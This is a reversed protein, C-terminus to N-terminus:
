IQVILSDLWRRDRRVTRNKFIMQQGHKTAQVFDSRRIDGYARLPKANRGTVAYTSSLVTWALAPYQWRADPAMKWHRYILNRCFDRRKDMVWHFLTSKDEWARTLLRRDRKQCGCSKRGIWFSPFATRTRVHVLQRAARVFDAHSWRKTSAWMWTWCRCRAETMKRIPIWCYGFKVPLGRTSTNVLPLHLQSRSKMTAARGDFHPKGRKSM